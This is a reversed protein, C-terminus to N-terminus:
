LGRRRKSSEASCCYDFRYGAVLNIAMYAHMCPYPTQYQVKVKLCALSAAGDDGCGVQKSFRRGLSLSDSTGKLSVGMPFSEIIAQLEM